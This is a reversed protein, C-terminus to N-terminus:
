TQECQDISASIEKENKSVHVNQMIFSTQLFIGKVSFNPIYLYGYRM